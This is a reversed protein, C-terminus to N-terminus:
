KCSFGRAEMEFKVIKPLTEYAYYVERNIDAIKANKTDILGVGSDIFTSSVGTFNNYIAAKERWTELNLLYDPSNEYSVNYVDTISELKQNQFKYTINEKTKECLLIEEGADNKELVINPYDSIQKETFLIKKMNTITNESVMYSFNISQEKKITEKNLIVRELLMNEESYLELFYNKRNFYFPTELKNTVTFYIENTGLHFNHLLLSNELEIQLNEKWEEMSLTPNEKEEEKKEEKEEKSINYDIKENDKNFFNVLTPLFFIFALLCAFILLVFLPNQEAEKIEGIKTIALEEQNIIVKKTDFTEKKKKAM